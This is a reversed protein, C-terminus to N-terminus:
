DLASPRQQFGSQGEDGRWVSGIWRITRSWCVAGDDAFEVSFEVLCCVEWGEPGVGDCFHRMSRSVHESVPGGTEVRVHGCVDM